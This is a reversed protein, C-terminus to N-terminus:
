GEMADMFIHIYGRWDDRNLELEEDDQFTYYRDVLIPVPDKVYNNEFPLGMYNGVLQGVWFGSVKDLLEEQSITRETALCVQCNGVFVLFVVGFLWIKKKM